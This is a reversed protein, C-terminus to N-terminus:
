RHSETYDKKLLVVGKKLAAVEIAARSEKTSQASSSAISGLIFSVSLLALSENSFKVNSLPAVILQPNNCDVVM